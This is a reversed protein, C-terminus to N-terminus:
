LLPLLAHHVAVDLGAVDHQVVRQAGLEAVEAQGPESVVAPAPVGGLGHEAGRPVDVRLEDVRAVRAGVGVHVAEADDEELDDGAPGRHDQQGALRGENQELPHPAQVSPVRDE